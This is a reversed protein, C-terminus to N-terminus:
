KSYNNRIWVKLAERRLIMKALAHLKDKEHHSYTFKKMQFESLDVRNIIGALSQNRHQAVENLMRMVEEFLWEANLSEPSESIAIHPHFDKKLQLYVQHFWLKFDAIPIVAEEPFINLGNSM